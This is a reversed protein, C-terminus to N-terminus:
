SICVAFQQSCRSSRVASLQQLSRAAPQFAKPLCWLLQYHSPTCRSGAGAACVLQTCQIRAGAERVLEPVPQLCRSSCWSRAGASAGATSNEAPMSPTPSSSSSLPAFVPWL